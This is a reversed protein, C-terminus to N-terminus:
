KIEVPFYHYAPEEYPHAKKLAAIVDKVVARECLMEIREEPVQSLEGKAGYAPNAREEPLFRGMGEYSFSCHTYNGLRGAGADGMAKRVADAHEKPASTVLMVFESEM